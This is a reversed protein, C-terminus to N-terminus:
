LHTCTSFSIHPFRRFLETRQVSGGHKGSSQVCQPSLGQYGNPPRWLGHPRQPTFFFTKGRSLISFPRRTRRQIWQAIGGETKIVLSQLWTYVHTSMSRWVASEYDPAHITRPSIYSRPTTRTVKSDGTKSHQIDTSHITCPTVFLAKCQFEM